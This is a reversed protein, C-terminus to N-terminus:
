GLDSPKVDTTTAPQQTTQQLLNKSFWAPRPKPIEVIRKGEFFEDPKGAKEGEYLVVVENEVPSLQLEKQIADQMEKTEDIVKKYCTPCLVGILHDDGCESCTKINKKPQLIKMVYDPHGYKRKMRKEITRRATPVGWLFGDGIIDKLSFAPKPLSPENQVEVGALCYGDPPFRRGLVSAIALELRQIAVNLRILLSGAM